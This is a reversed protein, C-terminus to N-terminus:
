FCLEQCPIHTCTDFEVRNDSKIDELTFILYDALYERLWCLTVARPSLQWAKNCLINNEM